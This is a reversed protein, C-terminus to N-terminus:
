SDRRARVPRSCRRLFAFVVDDEIERDQYAVLVLSPSGVDAPVSVRAPPDDAIEVIVDVLVRREFSPKGIPKIDQSMIDVSRMLKKIGSSPALPAEELTV